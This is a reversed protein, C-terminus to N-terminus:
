SLITYWFREIIYGHSYHEKSFELMNEYFQKSHQYINDKSVGFMGGFNFKLYRTNIKHKLNLKEAVYPVIYQDPNKLNHYQKFDLIAGWLGKDYYSIPILDYDLIDYYIPYKNDIYCTKDYNLCNIDPINKEILWQSSLAQYNQWSSKEDLYNLIEVFNPCHKFPDGQIFVTYNDLKEYNSVIHSLYTESERGYNPVNPRDIVVMHKHRFSVKPGKNYILIRENEDLLKNTFIWKISETYRAIVIKDCKM